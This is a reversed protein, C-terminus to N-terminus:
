ASGEGPLVQPVKILEGQITEPANALMVDRPFPEKVVDDRVVNIREVTHATPEINDVNLESLMEVYGIIAEMETQLREMLEPNLKLRALSAVKAVDIGNKKHDGM